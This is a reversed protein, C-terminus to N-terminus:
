PIESLDPPKVLIGTDSQWTEDLDRGTFHVDVLRGTPDFSSGDSSGDFRNGWVPLNLYTAASTAFDTESIRTASDDSAMSRKAGEDSYRATSCAWLVVQADKALFPRVRERLEEDGRDLYATEGEHHGLQVGKPSGHGAVIWLDIPRKDGAISMHEYIWNESAVEAIDLDYGQDVLEEIQSHLNYFAGNHDAVAMDVVAYPRHPRMPRGMADLVKLSLRGFHRIICSKGDKSRLMAATIDAAFQDPDRAKAMSIRDDLSHSIMTAIEGSDIGHSRIEDLFTRVDGLSWGWRDAAKLLSPFDLIEHDIVHDSGILETATSWTQTPDVGFNEELLKLTQAADTSVKLTLGKFQYDGGWNVHQASRTHKRASMGVLAEVEAIIEEPSLDAGKAARLIPMLNEEVVKAPNRGTTGLWDSLKSVILNQDSGTIGVEEVADYLILQGPLVNFRKFFDAISEGDRRNGISELIPLIRADDMGLLKADEIANNFNPFNVDEDQHISAIDEVSLGISRAEIFSSSISRFGVAGMSLRRVSSKDLQGKDNTLLTRIEAESWDAAILQEVQEIFADRSTISQSELLPNSNGLMNEMEELLLEAFPHTQAPPKDDVDGPEFEAELSILEGGDGLSVQHNRILAGPSSPLDLDYLVEPMQTNFLVADIYADRVSSDHGAGAIVELRDEMGIALLDSNRINLTMLGYTDNITAVSIPGEREQIREQADAYYRLGRVFAKPDVPGAGRVRPYITSSSDISGPECAKAFRALEQLARLRSGADELSEIVELTGELERPAVGAKYMAFRTKFAAHREGSASLQAGADAHHAWIASQWVKADGGLRKFHLVEEPSLEGDKEGLCDIADFKDNWEKPAGSFGAIEEPTLRLDGDRDAELFAEIEPPLAKTIERTM